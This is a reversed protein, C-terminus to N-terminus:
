LGTNPGIPNDIGVNVRNIDFDDDDSDIHLIDNLDNTTNNNSRHNMRRAEVTSVPVSRPTFSSRSRASNLIDFSGRIDNPGLTSRHINEPVPGPSVNTPAFSFDQNHSNTQASSFQRSDTQPQNNRNRPRVRPSSQPSNSSFGSKKPDSNRFRSIWVQRVEARRMVYLMFIIYGQMSNLACFLMQTIFSSAEIISLYGVCWALGMLVFISTANILRKKFKQKRSETQVKGEVQATIRRLVLIYIVINGLIIIAIPAM